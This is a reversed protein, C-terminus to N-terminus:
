LLGCRFWRPPLAKQNGLQQEALSGDHDVASFLKEICAVYSEKSQMLSQVEIKAVFIRCHYLLAKQLAESGMPSRLLEDCSGGTTRLVSPALSVCGGEGEPDLAIGVLLWDEPGAAAAPLM